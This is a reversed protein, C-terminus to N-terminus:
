NEFLLKIEDASMRLALHATLAKKEEDSITLLAILPKVARVVPFIEVSKMLCKKASDINGLQAALQGILAIRLPNGAAFSEANMLIKAAAEYDKLTLLCEGVLTMARVSEPSRNLISQGKRLAADVDGDKILGVYASAIALNEALPFRRSAARLKELEEAPVCCDGCAVLEIAEKLEPEYDNYARLTLQLTYGLSSLAQEAQLAKLMALDAAFSVARENTGRYVLFRALRRGGESRVLRHHFLAVEGREFDELVHVVVNSKSSELQAHFEGLKEVVVYSMNASELSKLFSSRNATNKAIMIVPNESTMPTRTMELVPM